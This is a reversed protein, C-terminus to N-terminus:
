RLVRTSSTKSYQTYLDPHEGKFRVSDFRVSAQPKWTAVPKDMGEISLYMREGMFNKIETELTEKRAKISKEQGKLSRWEDVVGQMHMDAMAVQEVPASWREAAEAPTSPEPIWGAEVKDHFSRAAKVIMEMLEENPRVIYRHLRGGSVVLFWVERCNPCCIFYSQGQVMYDDPTQDSDEEGWLGKDMYRPAKIECYVTNEGDGVLRRDPHCVLYPTDEDAYAVNCRRMTVGYEKEAMKQAVDEMLHGYLFMMEREHSEGTKGDKGTYRKYLEYPTSWRSLGIGPLAAIDSGGIIGIRDDAPRSVMIKRGM